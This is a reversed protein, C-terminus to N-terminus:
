TSPSTTPAAAAPAQDAIAAEVEALHYIRAKLHDIAAQAKRAEAATMPARELLDSLAALAMQDNVLSRATISM